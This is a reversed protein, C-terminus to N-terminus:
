EIVREKFFIISLTRYYNGKLFFLKEEAGMPQGFSIIYNNTVLPLERLLEDFQLETLIMDHKKYYTLAVRERLTAIDVIGGTERSPFAKYETFLTDKFFSRKPDVKLDMEAIELAKDELRISDNIIKLLECGKLIELWRKIREMKQAKSSAEIRYSLLEIFYKKSINQNKRIEEIFHFVKKDIELFVARAIRYAEEISKRKGEVILKGNSSLRINDGYGIILGLDRLSPIVMGRFVSKETKGLYLSLICERQKLRNYPYKDICEMADILKSVRHEKILPVVYYEKM